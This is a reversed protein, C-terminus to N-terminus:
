MKLTELNGAFKIDGFCIVIANLQLIFIKLCKCAKIDPYRNKHLNEPADSALTMRDKFREPLM